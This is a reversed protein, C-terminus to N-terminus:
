KEVRGEIIDDIMNRYMKWEEKLFKLQEKGEETIAYYKRNRGQYEQNYTVLYGSNELKRLIPYLTSEKINAVLKVIQSIQYGYSDEREVVCLILCEILLASVPYYM